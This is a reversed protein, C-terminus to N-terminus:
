ILHGSGMGSPQLIWKVQGFFSHPAKLLGGKLKTRLFERMTKWEVCHFFQPMNM